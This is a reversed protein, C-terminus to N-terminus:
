PNDDSTADYIHFLAPNTNTGCAYARQFVDLLRQTPDQRKYAAVQEKMSDDLYDIWTKQGEEPWVPILRYDRIQLLDEFLEPYVYSEGQLSRQLDQNAGSISEFIHSPMTKNKERAYALAANLVAAAIRLEEFLEYNNTIQTDFDKMRQYSDLIIGVLTRDEDPNWSYEEITGHETFYAKLANYGLFEEDGVDPFTIPVKSDQFVGILKELDEKQPPIIASALDLYDDDM